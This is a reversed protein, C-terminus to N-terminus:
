RFRQPDLISVRGRQDGKPQKGSAVGGQLDRGKSGGWLTYGQDRGKFSKV